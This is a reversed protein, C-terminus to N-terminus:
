YSNRKRRISAGHPDIRALLAAIHKGAHGDGFPHNLVASRHVRSVHRQIKTISLHFAPSSPMQDPVSLVNAARERGTQRPGIDIVPLGIAACELLGASSNGMLAGRDRSALRKLLALFQARPLHSLSTADNAREMFSWQKIIIERGPDSNPALM